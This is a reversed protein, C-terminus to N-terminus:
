IRVPTLGAWPDEIFSPRFYVTDGNEKKVGAALRRLDKQSLVTGNPAEYPAGTGIKDDDNDNGDAPSGELGTEGEFKNAKKTKFKKAKKGVHEDPIAVGGHDQDEVFKDDNAQPEKKMDSIDLEEPPSLLYHGELTQADGDRDESRRFVPFYSSDSYRRARPSETSNGWTTLIRRHLALLAPSFSLYYIGPDVGTSATFVPEVFFYIHGFVGEADGAATGHTESAMDEVTRKKTDPSAKHAAASEPTNDKKPQTGFSSFGMAAAVISDDPNDDM